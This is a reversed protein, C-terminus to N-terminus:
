ATVRFNVNAPFDGDSSLAELITDVGKDQTFRTASGFVYTNDPIAYKERIEIRAASDEHFWEGNVGVQTQM